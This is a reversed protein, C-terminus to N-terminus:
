RALFGELRAKVGPWESRLISYMVTDRVTGDRRLQQHRIVGDLQAGLREIARQSATNLHDTRFGVVDCGVSEFAHRLLLFKCETNVHTRQRSAAYWTYGIEVRRVEPVIDHYSTTGVVEDTARDLVAFPVRSGQAQALLAREIYQGVQDPEPASTIRLNWLAGDRVAQALGGAHDLTLPVLGTRDTTLTVPPVFPM